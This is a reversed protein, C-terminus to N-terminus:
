QKKLITVRPKGSDTLFVEIKNEQVFKDLQKSFEGQKYSTKLPARTVFSQSKTQASYVM